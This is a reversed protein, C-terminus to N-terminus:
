KNRIYTITLEGTGKQGIVQTSKVTPCTLEDSPSERTQPSNQAPVPISIEDNTIDNSPNVSDYTRCNKM